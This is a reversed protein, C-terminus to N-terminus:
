RRGRFLRVQVFKSEDEVNSDALGCNDGEFTKNFWMWRIAYEEEFIKDFHRWFYGEKLRRLASWRQYHIHYMLLQSERLDPRPKARATFFVKKGWHPALHRNTYVSLNYFDERYQGRDPKFKEIETCIKSALHNIMMERDVQYMLKERPPKFFCNKVKILVTRARNAWYRAEWRSYRRFGPLKFAWKGLTKPHPYKRDLIRLVDSRLVEPIKDFEERVTRFQKWEILERSIRDRIDRLYKPPVTPRQCAQGNEDLYNLCEQGFKDTSILNDVLDQKQDM